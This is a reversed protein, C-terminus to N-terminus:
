TSYEDNCFTGVIGEIEGESLVYVQFWEQQTIIGTTSAETVLERFVNIGRIKRTGYIVPVMTVPSVEALVGNKSYTIQPETPDDLADEGEDTIDELVDDLSDDLNGGGVIDGGLEFVDGLPDGGVDGTM